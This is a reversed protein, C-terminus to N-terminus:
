GYSGAHFEVFGGGDGTTIQLQSFRYEGAVVGQEGHEVALAAQPPEIHRHLQYQAFPCGVPDVQQQVRGLGVLQLVQLHRHVEELGM